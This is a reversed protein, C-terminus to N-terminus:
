RPQSPSGGIGMAERAAPPTMLGFGARRLLGATAAILEANSSAITGEPLCFNNEFGIRVHGGLRAAHLACESERRGFACTAWPADRGGLSAVFPDLEAPESQRDVASRGLVFLMCPRDFPVVGREVLDFLLAVESSAYLIFQPAIEEAALWRFFATAEMNAAGEPLIERLALSVAQPRVSRVCAMQEGPSFRGVAETTIQIILDKGATARIEEIAERYLTADLTHRGKGDRVHLHIAAAGAEACAAADRAIEAVTMPLAPHDTKGRWAGNPAVMMMVQRM